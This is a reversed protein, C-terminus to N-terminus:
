RSSVCLRQLSSSSSTSFFAPTNSTDQCQKEHWQSAACQSVGRQPSCFLFSKGPSLWLEPLELHLVSAHLCALPRFDEPEGTVSNPPSLGKERAESCMSQERSFRYGADCVSQGSESSDIRCLIPLFLMEVLFLYTFLDLQASTFKAANNGPNLTFRRAIM